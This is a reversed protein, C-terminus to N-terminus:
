LLIEPSWVAELKWSGFRTWLSGRHSSSVLTEQPQMETQERTLRRACAGAGFSRGIDTSDVRRLRRKESPSSRACSRRASRPSAPSGVEDYM